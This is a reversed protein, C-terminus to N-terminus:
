FKRRSLLIKWFTLTNRKYGEDERKRSFNRFNWGRVRSEERVVIREKLFFWRLERFTSRTCVYPVCLVADTLWPLLRWQRNRSVFPKPWAKHRQNFVLLQTHHHVDYGPEGAVGWVADIDCWDYIRKEKYKNEKRRVNKKNLCLFKFIFFNWNFYKFKKWFKLNGRGIM